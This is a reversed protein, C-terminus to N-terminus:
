HKAGNKLDFYNENDVFDTTKDPVSKDDMSDKVSSKIPTTELIQSPSYGVSQMNSISEVHKKMAVMNNQGVFSIRFNQNRQEVSDDEDEPDGVMQKKLMKGILNNSDDDDSDDSVSSLDENNAFEQRRRTPGATTSIVRSQQVISSKSAVKNHINKNQM